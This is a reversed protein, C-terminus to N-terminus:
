ESATVGKVYWNMASLYEQKKFTQGSALRQKGSTDEVPGVIFQKGGAMETQVKELKAKLGSSVFSGFEGLQPYGPKTSVEVFHAEKGTTEFKGEKLLEAQEKFYSSMDWLTSTVISKPCVKHFDYFNAVAYVHRREAVQCFSPDDMWNRLVDVGSNILSESAQTDKSPDFYSNLYVASVKCAPDVSQCGLAYANVGSRILPVDYSGIIGVKNTKTTEGAAIGAMYGLQWDELYYAVTNEPVPSPDAVAYCHVSPSQECVETLIEALGLTDVIVESGGAIAQKVISAAEQSYPINYIGNTEVGPVEGMAKMIQEQSQNFGGDNEPGTYLWTVKLSGGGGGSGSGGSGSSGGSTSGNSGCGAVVIALLAFAAFSAWRKRM